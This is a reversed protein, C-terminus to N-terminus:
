KRRRRVGAATLITLFGVALTSPEPVGTIAVPALQLASNPSGFISTLSASTGAVYTGALIQRSSSSLGSLDIVKSQALDNAPFQWQANNAFPVYGIATQTATALANALSSTDTSKLAWIYIQQNAPNFGPLTSYSPQSSASFSGAAFTGAGITSSDFQHFDANLTGIGSLTLANSSVLANSLTGFYGVRVYNGQALAAGSTDILGTDIAAGWNVTAAQAAVTAFMAALLVGFKKM